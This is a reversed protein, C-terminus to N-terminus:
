SLTQVLIFIMMNMRLISRVDDCKDRNEDCIDSSWVDVSASWSPSLARSGDPFIMAGQIKLM